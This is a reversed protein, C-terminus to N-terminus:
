VRIGLCIIRNGFRIRRYVVPSFGLNQKSANQSKQVEQHVLLQATAHAYKIANTYSDGQM